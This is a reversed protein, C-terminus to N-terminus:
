NRALPIYASYSGPFRPVMPVPHNFRSSKYPSASTLNSGFRAPTPVSATHAHTYTESSQLLDLLACVIVSLKRETTEIFKPTPLFVDLHVLVSTAKLQVLEHSIKTRPLHPPVTVFASDMISDATTPVNLLGLDLYHDAVGLLAGMAFLPWFLSTYVEILFSLM